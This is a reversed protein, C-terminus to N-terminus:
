KESLLPPLNHYTSPVYLFEFHISSLISSITSNEKHKSILNDLFSNFDKNRNCVEKYVTKLNRIDTKHDELDANLKKIEAALQDREATMASLQNELALIQGSQNFHVVLLTGFCILLVVCLVALLHHLKM